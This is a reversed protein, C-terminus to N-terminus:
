YCMGVNCLRRTCEGGRRQAAYGLRPEPLAKREISRSHIARMRIRHQTPIAHLFQILLQHALHLAPRTHPPASPPRPNLLNPPLHQAKKSPPPPISPNTLIHHLQNYISEITIFFRCSSQLVRLCPTLLIVHQSSYDVVFFFRIDDIM